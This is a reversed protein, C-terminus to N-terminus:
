YDVLIMVDVIFDAVNSNEHWVEGDTAQYFWFPYSANNLERNELFKLVKDVRDNFGWERDKGILGLKSADILAQIYVGLDWDTFYPSVAGTWPLGTNQDVGVGPKYYNWAKEAIKQWLASDIVTASEILGPAKPTISTGDDPDEITPSVTPNTTPNNTPPPSNTPLPTGDIPPPNEDTPETTNGERPLFAFVSVILLAILALSISVKYKKSLSQLKAFVSKKNEEKVYTSEDSDQTLFSCCKKFDIM